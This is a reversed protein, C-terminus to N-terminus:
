RKGIDATIAATIGHAREAFRAGEEFCRAKDWLQPQIDSNLWHREIQWDPLPVRAARDAPAKNKM